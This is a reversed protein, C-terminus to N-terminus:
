KDNSMADHFRNYGGQVCKPRSETYTKLGRLITGFKDGYTQHRGTKSRAPFIFATSVPNQKKVGETRAPQDYLAHSFSHDIILTLSSDVFIIIDCAHSSNLLFLM